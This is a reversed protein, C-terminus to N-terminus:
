QKVEGTPKASWYVVLKMNDDTPTRFLDFNVTASDGVFAPVTRAATQKVSFSDITAATWEDEGVLESMRLSISWIGVPLNSIVAPIAEYTEEIGNFRVTLRTQRSPYPMCGIKLRVRDTRAFNRVADITLVTDGRLYILDDTVPFRAHVICIKHLGPITMLSDQGAKIPRGDFELAVWPDPKTKVQVSISDVSPHPPIVVPSESEPSKTTSRSPPDDHATKETNNKPTKSAENGSKEVEPKDVPIDTKRSKADDVSDMSIEPIASGHDIPLTTDDKGISDVVAPIRAATRISDAVVNNATVGPESQSNGINSVVLYVAAVVILPVGVFMVLKKPRKIGTRDPLSNLFRLVENMDEFRDKKEPATLRKLFARFEPSLRRAAEGNWHNPNAGLREHRLRVGTSLQFLTVGLAYIDRQIPDDVADDDLQDPPLYSWTGPTPRDETLHHSTRKAIGFDILRVHGHRDIMINSPKLDRHYVENAHAYALAKILALAVTTVRKESMPGSSHVLQECDSGDIYPIVIAKQDPLYAQVGCINPHDLNAQIAAELRFRDIAEPRMLFKVVVKQDFLELNRALYVHGFGGRGIYREIQYKRVLATGLIGLPDTEGTQSGEAPTEDTYEDVM